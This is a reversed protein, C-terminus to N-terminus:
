RFAIRRPRCARHESTRRRRSRRRGGAHRAHWGGAAGAGDLHSLVRHLDRDGARAARRNRDRAIAAPSCIGTARAAPEARTRRNRDGRASGRRPPHLGDLYAEVPAHIIQGMDSGSQLSLAPHAVRLDDGGESRGAVAIVDEVLQHERADVHEPEIERVTRVLCMAGGICAQTRSRIPGAAGNGHQLIQAARLDPRTPKGPAGGDRQLATIFHRM